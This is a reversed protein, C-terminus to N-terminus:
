RKLQILTTLIQDATTISKANAEFARQFVMLNVLSESLNATSLELTGGKIEATKDNNVNFLAAGSRTSEMLLNDGVPNLGRNDTFRAIAVQGIAFRAGDQTMTILGTNDVEFDGFASDTLGLTDLRLQLENKSATQNINTNIQLFEAGAGERTSINPNKALTGIARGPQTELSEGFTAGNDSSPLIATVNGESAQYTLTLVGAVNTIDQLKRTPNAANWTAMVAAKDLVIANAIATADDAAVVAVPEGLFTLNGTATATGNITITQTEQVSATAALDSTFEVDYNNDKTKVVLSGNFNFAEVYNQLDPDANIAAAMATVSADKLAPTSADYGAAGNDLVLPSAPVIVDMGLVNDYIEIQYTYTNNLQTTTDLALEASTFVDMQKGSVAEAMADRISNIHGMGTGLVAPQVTIPDGKSAQNDNSADTWGFETVRFQKGPILGEVVIYGLEPATQTDTDFPSTTDGTVYATFGGADSLFDAFNKMTTANDTDFSVSYKQGDIYAYVEDGEALEAGTLPFNLLSKQSSSTSATPKPDAEAYVSLSSNYETILAEVDSIKTSASKYGAGSFVTINDTEATTTYDTAKAVITEVNATDRIVKNGLLKTFDNTFFKANPDTATIDDDTVPQIAWGQVKNQAVDELTGGEGMRFNGARTYYTDAGDKVQFFGDGSLAMDYSVGTNKLNGQTYMKEVDFSTVGKGIKDQYMQDAFSVRSAKYGITNVNAINNSENDLGTQSGGLGSIGTWLAGVM